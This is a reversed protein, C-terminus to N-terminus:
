GIGMCYCHHVSWIKNTVIRRLHKAKGRKAADVSCQGANGAHDIEDLGGQILEGMAGEVLVRSWDVNGHSSSSSNNSDREGYKDSDLTATKNLFSLFHLSIM